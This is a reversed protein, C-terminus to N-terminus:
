LPRLVQAVEPPVALRGARVITLEPPSVVRGQTLARAVREVVREMAAADMSRKNDRRGNMYFWSTAEKASLDFCYEDYADLAVCLDERGTAANSRRIIHADKLRYNLGNPDIRVQQLPVYDGGSQPIEPYYGHEDLVAQLYKTTRDFATLPAAEGTEFQTMPIYLLM